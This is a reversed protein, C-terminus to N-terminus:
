PDDWYKWSEAARDLMRAETPRLRCRLCDGSEFEVVVGVLRGFRGHVWKRFEDQARWESGKAATVWTFVLDRSRGGEIERSEVAALPMRHGSGDMADVTRIFHPESTRNTVSVKLM